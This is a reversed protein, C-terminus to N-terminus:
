TGSRIFRALRRVADRAEPVLTAHLHFDHWLGRWEQWIASVKADLLARHLRRAEGAFIEESASQILVPPLGTLKDDPPTVLPHTQLVPPIYGDRTWAVWAKSLLADHDSAPLGRLTWDLCPSILVLARPMPLNLERRALTLTFALHAGTSDGALVLQRVDQGQHELERLVAEADNLQAPFPHEPALRYTPVYVTMGSERSILRTLSRHSNPSCVTYGGGHFYLIATDSSPGPHARTLPTHRDTGRGGLTIAETRVGRPMPVTWRLSDVLRRQRPIATRRSLMPRVLCRLLSKVMVAQISAAGSAITEHHVPISPKM